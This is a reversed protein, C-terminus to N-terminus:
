DILKLFIAGDFHLFANPCCVIYRGLYHGESLVHHTVELWKDQSSLDHTVMDRNYVQFSM